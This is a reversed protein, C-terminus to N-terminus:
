MEEMCTSLRIVLIVFIIVIRHDIINEQQNRLAKNSEESARQHEPSDYFSEPGTFYGGDSIFIDIICLLRIDTRGNM